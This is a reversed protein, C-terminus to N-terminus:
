NFLERSQLARAVYEDIVSNLFEPSKFKFRDYFAAKSGARVVSPGLLGLFFSSSITYKGEPVIVEVKDVENEREALHIQRRFAEGRDRGTYVQGALDKLDVTFSTM